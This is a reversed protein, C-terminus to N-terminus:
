ESYKIALKEKNMNKLNLNLSVCRGNHPRDRPARPDTEGYHSHGRRAQEDMPDPGRGPDEEDEPQDPVAEAEGEVDEDEARVHQLGEVAGLGDDPRLLEVHDKAVKRADRQAAVEPDHDVRHPPLNFSVPRIVAAQENRLLGLLTLVATFLSQLTAWPPRFLIVQGNSM